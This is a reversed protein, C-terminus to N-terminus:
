AGVGKARLAEVEVESGSCCSASRGNVAPVREVRIEKARRYGDPDSMDVVTIVDGLAWATHLSEMEHRTHTDM